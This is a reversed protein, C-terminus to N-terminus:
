AAGGSARRRRFGVFDLVGALGCVRRPEPVPTAEIRAVADADVLYGAMALDFLEGTLKGDRRLAMLQLTRNRITESTM